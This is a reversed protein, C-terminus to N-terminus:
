SAPQASVGFRQRADDAFHRVVSSGEVNATDLVKAVHAAHAAAPHGAETAADLASSIVQQHAKDLSSGSLGGAQLVRKGHQSVALAAVDDGGLAADTMKQTADGPGSMVLDLDHRAAMDQGPTLAPLALAQAQDRAQQLKQRAGDLNGQMQTVGRGALEAVQQTRAQSTLEPRASTNEMQVAHDAAIGPLQGLAATAGDTLAEVQRIDAPAVHRRPSDPDEGLRIRSDREPQADQHKALANALHGAFIKTGEFPQRGLAPNVPFGDSDTQITAM